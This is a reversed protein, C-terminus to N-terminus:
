VEVLSISSPDCYLVAYEDSVQLENLYDVAIHGTVTFEQSVGNVLRYDLYYSTSNSISTDSDCKYYVNAGNPLLVSYEVSSSSFNLSRIFTSFTSSVYGYLDAVSLVGDSKQVASIYRSVSSQIFSTPFQDDPLDPNKSYSLVIKLLKLAPYYIQTDVGLPEVGENQIYTEVALTSKPSYVRCLVNPETTEFTEIQQSLTRAYNQDLYSVTAYKSEVESRFDDAVPLEEVRKNGYYTKGDITYRLPIENGTQEEFKLASFSFTAATDVDTSVISFGTDVIINVMGLTHLKNSTGIRLVDRQMSPHGAGVVFVNKASDVNDLITTRISSITNFGRHTLSDKIRECFEFNSEQDEGATFTETNHIRVLNFPTNTMSSFDGPVLGSGISDRSAVVFVSAIYNGTPNGSSDTEDEMEPSSIVLPQAQDYVYEVGPTKEFITGVPISIPDNTSLVLHVVGEAKTGTNRSIFYNSALQDLMSTASESEDEKLQGISLKNEIQNVDGEIAAVVTALPVVVLDHLATGESFNAESTTSNLYAVISNALREVDTSSVKIRDLM